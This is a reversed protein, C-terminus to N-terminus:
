RLIQSGLQAHGQMIGWEAETLMGPKDLILRPIRQKGIDHMLAAQRLFLAEEPATGLFTAFDYVNSAVALSHDALFSNQLRQGEHLALITADVRGPPLALELNGMPLLVHTPDLPLFKGEPFM